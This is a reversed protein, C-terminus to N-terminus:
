THWSDRVRGTNLSRPGENSIRGRLAPPEPAIFRAKRDPTFFGGEAFFRTEGSERKCAPWVVPDLADFSEDSLSALAGIDFDRAGDNEFASLAAHERFIDAACQYAFADGYGMRRAIQTVIWWDPKAEGPLPLFARQRSIRRESNTVTGDKEGWAAAALLVHAGASVPDNSLVNESVVFLDLQELAERVAGARRLSVVPNSATVWRAKAKARVIAEF